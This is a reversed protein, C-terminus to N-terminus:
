ACSRRAAARAARHFDPQSSVGGYLTGELVDACVQGTLDIAFAQTVSVMREQRALVEPDCVRNIPEFVFRPDGVDRADDLIARRKLWVPLRYSRWVSEGRYGKKPPTRSLTSSSSAEFEHRSEAPSLAFAVDEGKM